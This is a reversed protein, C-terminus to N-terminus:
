FVRHFSPLLSSITAQEEPTIGFVEFVLADLSDMYLNFADGDGAIEAARASKVLASLEVQVSAEVFPIPLAKMHDPYFHTGDYMLEQFYFKLVSSNLIAQICDISYRMSLNIRDASINRSITINQVDKMSVWPTVVVVSANCYAGSEDLAFRFKSIDSLTCLGVIKTNAFLEPFMPNYMEDPKYDLFVNSLVSLYGLNKGEFYRVRGPADSDFIIEKKKAGDLKGSPRLGYNISCFDELVLHKGRIKNLLQIKQPTLTIRFNFRDLESFIQQSMSIFVGNAFDRAQEKNQIDLLQFPQGDYASNIWNIISTRVTASDFIDVNFNVLHTIKSTLLRERLKLGYEQSFWKNSTIFSLVGGPALMKISREFFLIYLDYKKYAFDYEKIALAKTEQDIKEINVYPPNGIIVDFGKEVGFMLEADFFQSIAESDFPNFTRLQEGRDDLVGSRLEKLYANQIKGKEKQSSERFFEERLLQLRDQFDFDTFLDPTALGILSNACVFNFELNPLPGVNKSAKEEVILSLWARVKSIEVAMPEIDGGFINRRLVDLKLDYVNQGPNLRLRLKTLLSLMGLPFAGSGCAPDLTKFSELASLIKTRIDIPISSLNNSSAASWEHEPTDILKSVSSAIRSDDGLKSILFTKVAETCMFSVVERPTYFTGKAKRAQEGTAEVQTALLSEFVRGLMEPDIAVQEYEPTSEDTTFNFSNFHEFLRPFFMNPFSLTEGYWDDQKQSFLGGNLYPTIGGLPELIDGAREELPMGLTRFFLHELKESYYLSQDEGPSFYFDQNAIVDMRRLFWVFILRGLLRSAFLKSDQKSKGQSELEQVLESFADAVGAYFKSNVSQLKFSEWISEHIVTKSAGVPLNAWKQLVSIDTNTLYGRLELVRLKGLNSVVVFFSRSNECLFFDIGIKYNDNRSWEADEWNPTFHVAGAMISNTRKKLWYFKAQLGPDSGELITFVSKTGEFDPHGVFWTDYRESNPLPLVNEGLIDVADSISEDTILNLIRSGLEIAYTARERGEKSESIERLIRNADIIWNKFDVQM